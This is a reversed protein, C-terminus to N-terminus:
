LLWPRLETLDRGQRERTQELVAQFAWRWRGIPRDFILNTGAWGGASVPPAGPNSFRFAM